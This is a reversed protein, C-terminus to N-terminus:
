SGQGCSDQGAARRKKRQRPNPRKWAPVAGRAQLEAVATVLQCRSGTRAYQEQLRALQPPPLGLAVYWISFFPSSAYGTGEPHEYAYKTSPVVFLPGQPGLRGAAEAWYTKTACYNPLLLAWPKGSAACFHLAREKHTGSYPPNTVLIDYDPLQQTAVDHYFDRNRHILHNFGLAQWHRRVGGKCYFPDYLVLKHVPKGLRGALAQLCPGLDELAARSTEFHDLYDTQFPRSPSPGAAQGGAAAGAAAVSSTAAERSSGLPPSAPATPQRAHTTRPPPPQHISNCSAVARPAPTSPRSVAGARGGAASVAAAAPPSSSAPHPHGLRARGSAPCGAGAATAPHSTAQAVAATAAKAAPSAPHDTLAPQAGAPQVGAEAGPQGVHGSPTASRMGKQMAKGGPPPTCAPTRAQQQKSQTGATSLQMPAATQHSRVRAAHIRGSAQASTHLELRQSLVEMGADASKDAHPVLGKSRKRKLSSMGSARNNCPMMQYSTQQQKLAAQGQRTDEQVQGHQRQHQWKCDAAPTLQLQALTSRAEHNTTRKRGSQPAPAQGPTMAKGSSSKRARQRKHFLPRDCDNAALEAGPELGLLSYDRLMSNLSRM